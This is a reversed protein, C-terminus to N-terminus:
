SFLGHGVPASCRTLAFAPSVSSAPNAINGSYDVLNATNFLNFVEGFLALRVRESGLSFTRGLRLRTM